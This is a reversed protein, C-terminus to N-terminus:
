RTPRSRRSHPAGAPRPSRRTSPPSYRAPPRVTPRSDARTLGSCISATAPSCASSTCWTPGDAVGLHITQGTRQRLDEMIPLAAQRLRSRSISLQGLEYIHLGLRYRGTGPNQEVFGRSLLTSLMRHASSKAVGLARAIESVRLEDDALFCDLVDLPHEGVSKLADERPRTTPRRPPESASM